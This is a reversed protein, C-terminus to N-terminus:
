AEIKTVKRQAKVTMDIVMRGNYYGCKMCAYHMKKKEGCQTCVILHLGNELKNRRKTVYSAFRRGTRAKSTKKKPVAM